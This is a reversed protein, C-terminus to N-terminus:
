KGLLKITIGLQGLHYVDHQIMGQVLYKNTYTYHPYKQELYDDDKKLLFDILQQQSEYFKSKLAKWGAPKLEDNTRWNRPDDEVFGQKNGKLRSITELRWEHLHSILEAVSHIEPIPRIFIKDESVQSLKKEFNEDLWVEEDLIDHLQQVYDKILKNKMIIATKNFRLNRFNKTELRLFRVNNYM